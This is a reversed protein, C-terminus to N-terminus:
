TRKRWGHCRGDRPLPADGLEGARAEAIFQVSEGCQPDNKRQAQFLVSDRTLKGTAPTVPGMRSTNVVPASQKADCGPLLAPLLLSCLVALKGMLSRQRQNGPRYGHPPSKLGPSSIAANIM